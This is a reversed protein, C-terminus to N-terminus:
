LIGFIYSRYFLIVLENVNNHLAYLLECTTHLINAVLNLAISFMAHMLCNVIFMPSNLGSFYLKNKFTQKTM